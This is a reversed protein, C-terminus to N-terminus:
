PSKQIHMTLVLDGTGPPGPTSFLVGLNVTGSLYVETSMGGNMVLGRHGVELVGM